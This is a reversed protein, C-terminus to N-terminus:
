RAAAASADATARGTDEERASVAEAIVLAEALVKARPL